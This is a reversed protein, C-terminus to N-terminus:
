FGINLSFTFNRTNPYGFSSQTEPDTGNYKTLTFLNTAVVSAKLNKIFTNKLISQPARWSLSLATCKLYSGDELDTDVLFRHFNTLNNAYAPIDTIDGSQRWRYLNDVTRNTRSTAVDGAQGVPGNRRDSFGPIKNGTAFVFNSTLEFSKYVARINFGGYIDPDSHGLYYTSYEGELNSNPISALDILEDEYSTVVQGNVTNQITRKAWVMPNGNEPNVHSFKYGFWGNTPYGQINTANWLPLNPYQEEFVDELNNKVKTFNAGIQLLYDKGKLVEIRTSLEYGKNTLTGNNVVASTRGISAPIKKKDIVDKITEDFYRAEFNCRGEFLSLELGLNLEEKKEWKLVPNGYTFDSATNEGGYVFSGISYIHFPYVSRNISGRYGYGISPVLRSFINDLSKMFKENHVNWKVGTSWLPTFQNDSGIIDVGDYRINFNFAYRNDYSYVGSGIFSVSRNESFSSSGLSELDLQDYSNDNIIDWTPYGAIRYDSLYVPLMNSFQYNTAGSIENAAFIQVFHKDFKKNFELSNRVSYDFTRGMSEALSGLNYEPLILAGAAPNLWNNRWSRYTGPNSEDMSHVSTYNIVGTGTYRFNKLFNYEVGLQGRINATTTTVTNEKLERLINFGNFGNHESRFLFGSGLYTKDESYSGDENYPKEYPNAFVAYKFPDHGAQGEVNKKFNTYVNFKLLLDDNVWRNIKLNLGGSQYDNEILAGQSNNYNVSANYQTKENGGSMSLNHSQTKANRYIVDMWNTNINALGSIQSEAEASSMVGNHVSHLLTNVRGGFEPLFESYIGREFAIKQKTNMFNWKNEPRMTVGFKATYNVYDKGAKGMKTTIVVVGNAARAGYVSAATADKLITISEIDEPPINAIGNTMLSSVDGSVEGSPLPMGDLVFLPEKNGTMTNIGRIRIEGVEGPRGSNSRVYVGAMKGKIAEDITVSGVNELEEATIGSISGIMKSKERRQMGTIVVEQLGEISAEMVIDITTKSDVKVVKDKMGIFSFVLTINEKSAIELSFKGDIDTAVGTLTGKVFVSVGPLTNGEDDTVTGKIIRKEQQVKVKPEEPKPMIIIVSKDIEYTLGTGDLVEELIEEVTQQDADISLGDLKKIEELNYIFGLNTQSEIEKILEKASVNNMKLSVKQQSLVSANLQISFAFFLLIFTKM